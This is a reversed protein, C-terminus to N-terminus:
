GRGEATQPSYASVFALKTGCPSWTCAEIWHGLQAELAFVQLGFDFGEAFPGPDRRRLTCRWARQPRQRRPPAARAALRM